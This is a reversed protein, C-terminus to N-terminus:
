FALATGAQALRWLAPLGVVGDLKEASERGLGVLKLATDCALVRLGLARRGEELTARLSTVGADRAHPPMDVDFRDAIWDAHPAFFLALHVEDGMAAATVAATAALYRAEWGPSNLFIVLPRPM